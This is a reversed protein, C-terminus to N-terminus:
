IEVEQIIYTNSKKVRGQFEEQEVRCVDKCVDSGYVVKLATLRAFCVFSHLAASAVARSMFRYHTQVATVAFQVDRQHVARCFLM